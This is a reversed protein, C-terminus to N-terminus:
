QTGDLKRILQRYARYWLQRVAGETRDMQLAINQFPMGQQHRLRLVRQFDAALEGIAMEIQTREEKRVMLQSPTDAPSTTLESPSMCANGFSQERSIDRKQTQCYHRYQRLVNNALITRLWALLELRTTGRFKSFNNQANLFTEQLLDSGGMKQRLDADLNLEAILRLYDRAVDFLEGLSAHNGNRADRISQEVRLESLSFQDSSSAPLEM